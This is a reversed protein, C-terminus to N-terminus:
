SRPTGTGAVNRLKILVADETPRPPQDGPLLARRRAVPCPPEVGGRGVVESIEYSGLRGLSGAADSPALFDLSEAGAGSPPEGQTEASCGQERSEDTARQVLPTELFKGGHFHSKLLGEVRRRLAANGACAEELYAAREAPSDRELAAAFITEETM